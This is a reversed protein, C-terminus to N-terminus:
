LLNLQTPIFRAFWSAHIGIYDTYKRKIFHNQYKFIHVCIESKTVYCDNNMGLILHTEIKTPWGGPLTYPKSSDLVRFEAMRPTEFPTYEYTNFYLEVGLMEAESNFDQRYRKPKNTQM